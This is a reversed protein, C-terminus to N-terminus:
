CVAELRVDDATTDIGYFQYLQLFQNYNMDLEEQSIAVGNVTAATGEPVKDGCGFLGTMLFAGLALIAVKKKM